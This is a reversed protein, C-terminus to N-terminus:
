RVMNQPSFISERIKKYKLSNFVVETENGSTLVDKVLYVSPRLKGGLDRVKSFEITKILNGSLTYLEQKVPLLRKKEVSMIIKPYTVSKNTANMEIRYENETGELLKSVYDNSLDYDMLDRNSFSTGMFSDKGSLRVPRSIGPVFMWMNDKVLLIRKNKERPPDTFEMLTGSDKKFQVEAVLKKTFKGNKYDIISVNMEGERFTLNDDVAKVIDQASMAHLNPAFCFLLAWIFFRNM